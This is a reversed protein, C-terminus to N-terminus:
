IIDLNLTENLNTNFLCKFQLDNDKHMEKILLDFTTAGILTRLYNCFQIRKNRKKKSQKDLNLCNRLKPELTPMMNMVSQEIIADLTDRDRLFRAFNEEKTNVKRDREPLNKYFFEAVKVLIKYFVSKENLYNKEKGSENLNGSDHMLENEDVSMIIKDNKEDLADFEDTM